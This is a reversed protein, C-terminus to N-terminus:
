AQEGFVEIPNCLEGPHQRSQKLNAGSRFWVDSLPSGLRQSGLLM